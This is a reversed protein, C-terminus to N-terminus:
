VLFAAKNCPPFLNIFIPLMKVMEKNKPVAIKENSDIPM